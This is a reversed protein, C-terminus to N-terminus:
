LLSASPPQSGPNLLPDLRKSLQLRRGRLISLPPKFGQDGGGNSEQEEREEERKREVRHILLAHLRRADEVVCHSAPVDGGVQAEGELQRM